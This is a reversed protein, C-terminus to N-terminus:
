RSDPATANCSIRGFSLDWIERFSTRGSCRNWNDFRKSIKCLARCHYQRARHLSEDRNSSQVSFNHTFSIERSKIKLHTEPPYRINDCAYVIRGYSVPFIPLYSLMNGKLVSNKHLCFMLYGAFKTAICTIEGFSVDFEFRAFSRENLVDMEITLDNQYKACLVATVSGHETCFKLVVTCSLLLNHGFSIERPKPKLYTEFPYAINYWGRANPIM